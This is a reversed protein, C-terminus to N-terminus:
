WKGPVGRCEPRAAVLFIPRETRKAEALASDLTGFWALKEQNSTDSSLSQNDQGDRNGTRQQAQSENLVILFILMFALCSITKNM